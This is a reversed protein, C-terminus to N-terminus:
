PTPQFRTAFQGQAEIARERDQEEDAWHQAEAAAVLMALKTQENELMVQEAGIRANLDLIGKQDSATGIANILQQLDAFRSSANALAQRSVAQLLAATDRGAALQRQGDPSLTALQQPTLVADETLSQRIAASLESYASSTDNLAATLQSWDAPLYNRSTGALLQEMGRDGTMSRLQTDAEALHERAVTLAQELNQVETVLQTVAAVDIVAFQARAAPAAALFAIVILLPNKVYSM